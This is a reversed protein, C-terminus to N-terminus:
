VTEKEAARAERAQVARARDHARLRVLELLRDSLEFPDVPKVFWADAGSWRALWTDHKRDLLIVIVGDYPEVEGRLMRAMAFAGARSAMEDAIVADPQIRLAVQAAREGNLAGVVEVQEGLSRELGRVTLGLHERLAADSSAIVVKM